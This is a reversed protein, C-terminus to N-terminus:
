GDVVSILTYTKDGVRISSGTHLTTSEVLDSGNVQCDVGNASNITWAGDSRKLSFLEQNDQESYATYTSSLPYAISGSLIHSPEQTSDSGQSRSDEIDSDEQLPLDRWFNREEVAFDSRDPLMKLAKSTWDDTTVHIEYGQANFYDAIGPLRSVFATLVLQNTEHSNQVMSAYLNAASSALEARTVEIERAEGVHTVEIRIPDDDTELGAALQEYVQQETNGFARPDFRSEKLSHTAVVNIWNNILSLFGIGAISQSNTIELNSDLHITSLISRNLGIDLLLSDGQLGEVSIASFGKDVFDIPNFNAARLISLLLSVQDLTTDSPVVVWIPDKRTVKAQRLIEQLHRYLIDAQTIDLRRDAAIREQNLKQLYQTHCSAPSIRLQANADNGFLFRNREVLAVAPSSYRIEGDKLLRVNTDHLELVWM